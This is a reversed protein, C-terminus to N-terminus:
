GGRPPLPVRKEVFYHVSMTGPAFRFSHPLDKPIWHQSGAPHREVKGNLDMAIEGEVVFGWEVDHTHVPVVVERDPPAEIFLVQSGPGDHVYVTAEALKTRPLRRISEPFSM